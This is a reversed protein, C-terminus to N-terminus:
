NPTQDANWTVPAVEAPQVQPQDLLDDVYEVDTVPQIIAPSETPETMASAIPMTPVDTVDLLPSEVPAYSAQPPAALTGPSLISSQSGAPVYPDNAAPKVVSTKNRNFEQDHQKAPVIKVDGPLVPTTKTQAIASNVMRSIMIDHYTGSKDKKAAAVGAPYGEFWSNICKAGDSTQYEYSRYEDPPLAPVYGDGGNSMDQYGARFGREFHKAYKRNCNAYRLNYARRAWVEDRYTLMAAEKIGLRCGATQSLTLMAIGILLLRTGLRTLQTAPQNKVVAKNFM